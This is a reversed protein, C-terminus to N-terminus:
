FIDERPKKLNFVQKIPQNIGYFLANEFIEKKVVKVQEKPIGFTKWDFEGVNIQNGQKKLGNYRRLLNEYQTVENFVNIYKADEKMSNLYGLIEEKSKLKLLDKKDSVNNLYMKIDGHATLNNVLLDEFYLRFENLHGSYIIVQNRQDNSEQMGFLESYRYKRWKAKKKILSDELDGGEIKFVYSDINEEPNVYGGLESSDVVYTLKIGQKKLKIDELLRDLTNYLANLEFRQKQARTRKKKLLYAKESKLYHTFEPLYDQIYRLYNIM